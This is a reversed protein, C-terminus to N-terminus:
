KNIKNFWRTFMIKFILLHTLLPWFYYLTNVSLVFITTYLVSSLCQLNDVLKLYVINQTTFLLHTLYVMTKKAKTNILISPSDYITKLNKNRVKYELLVSQIKSNNNFISRNKIKYLIKVRHHIRGVGKYRVNHLLLFYLKFFLFDVIHM